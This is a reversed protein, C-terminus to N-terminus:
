PLVAIGYSEFLSSLHCTSGVCRTALRSITEGPPATLDNGTLQLWSHNAQRVKASVDALHKRHTELVEDLVVEPICCTAGIRSLGELFVRFAGGRMQYDACFVNTDLVVNM